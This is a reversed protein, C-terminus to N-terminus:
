NTWPWGDLGARIRSTVEDVTLDSTDIHMDGISTREPDEAARAAESALQLLEDTSMGRLPDGPLSPGEGRGRALLRERLSVADAHLHCVKMALTPVAAACARMVERGVGGSAVLCRAGARDYVSWLRALNRTKVRHNSPDDEPAPRVFSVQDLDIYAARIGSRMVDYFLQFGVSSKGVGRVGCVLVFPTTVGAM